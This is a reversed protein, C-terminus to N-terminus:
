SKSTLVVLLLLCRVLERENASIKIKMLVNLLPQSGAQLQILIIETKIFSERYIHVPPYFVNLSFIQGTPIQLSNNAFVM